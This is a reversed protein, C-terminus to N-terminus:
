IVDNNIIILKIISYIYIHIQEHTRIMTTFFTKKIRFNSEKCRHCVM